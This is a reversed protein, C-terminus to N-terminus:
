AHIVEKGPEVQRNIGGKKLGLALHSKGLGEGILGAKM